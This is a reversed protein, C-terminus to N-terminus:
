YSNDKPKTIIFTEGDRVIVEAAQSRNSLLANVDDPTPPSQTFCPHTHFQVLEGEPIDVSYKSGPRFNISDLRGKRNFSLHGGYEVNNLSPNSLQNLPKRQRPTVVLRKRVGRNIVKKKYGKRTKLLRTHSRPRQGKNM